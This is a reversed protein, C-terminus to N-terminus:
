LRRELLHPRLTCCTRVTEFNLPDMEKLKQMCGKSHPDFISWVFNYVYM